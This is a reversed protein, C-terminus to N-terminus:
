WGGTAFEDEGTLEGGGAAREDVFRQQSECALALREPELNAAALSRSIGDERGFGAAAAFQEAWPDFRWSRWGHGGGSRGCRRTCGTRWRRRATDIRRRSLVELSPAFFLRKWAARSGLSM